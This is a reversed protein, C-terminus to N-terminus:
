NNQIRLLFRCILDVEEISLDPYFPLCMVCKAIDDTIPFYQKELYPLTTALSPYFYRRTFIEHSKLFNMAKLMSEENEFIIPYYAYNNASDDHWLPKRVNLNKLKDDFRDNIAKRKELIKDIYELNLLGMAAHFESNKGNIGLEAFAEPGDFGFNRMYALKKLITADKTIVLGGEISHYLKTAHLSCISIDGYEFISKGNIRVGFAHAGDYIVKLNHKSAIKEIEVVDCPNGYVHTALIATTKETISDEIKSADINLSNEDIDVFVPKCGEWVISSTTAVFSFPTTIIEGKLDLAKIAMQLAVTGNTVFLLHSLGLYEKLKIELDNALPGMNTLWQRQWIGTLYKQYEESPPLFPKTVPIM